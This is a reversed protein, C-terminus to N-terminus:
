WVPPPESLPPLPPLPPEVRVAVLDPPPPELLDGLASYRSGFFYAAYSEKFVAVTGYVAVIAVLYIAILVLAIAAVIAIFVVRLGIGGSWMARYLGFGVALGAMGGVGLIMFVGIMLAWSIGLAIIFRLLLYVAVSGFDERLLSLFRGFAGEIPADEIAIPPLVFDQLVADVVMWVLGILLCIGIFPLMPALMPWPNANPNPGHGGIRAAEKMMRILFPGATVALLILCVLSALLVVGFYCWTKRGYKAWAGRVRGRRYVVLDFLTFRLRCFLYTSLIWFVLGIGFVIALVVFGVAASPAIFGFESAGTGAFSMPTRHRIAAGAGAQVGQMPYSIIVSYFGPQTLAAVLAIKLFFGLRFPAFMVERVRRFAPGLADAPSLKTM